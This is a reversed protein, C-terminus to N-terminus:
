TCNGHFSTLTKGTCFCANAYPRNADLIAGNPPNKALPKLLANLILTTRKAETQHYKFDYNSVYM